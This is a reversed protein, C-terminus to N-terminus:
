SGPLGTLDIIMTQYALLAELRGQSIEAQAPTSTGALNRINRQIVAPTICAYYGMGIYSRLVQNMSAIERLLRAGRTRTTALSISHASWGSKRRCQRKPWPM